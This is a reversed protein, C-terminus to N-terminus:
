NGLRASREPLHEHGHARLFGLVAADYVWPQEIQCAHGAGPVIVLEARPLRDRLAGAVENTMDLDGSVILVPADLDEQLCAPDPLELAEFMRLISGLDASANREVFMRAFWEALPGSSFHPSFTELTYAYRYDLGQERYSSMRRSFDKKPRWGAGSLILAQTQSPRLHYMHQVLTSGVSCGFLVAPGEAGTADVAEWCAQAIEVLRVGDSTRPSRGYGPLDVTICRYWTSFHAIQYIWSSGDMPNAHVFVLPPAGVDGFVDTSLPGEIHTM